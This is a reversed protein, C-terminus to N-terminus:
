RFTEAERDGVIMYRLGSHSLNYVVWEDASFHQRVRQLAQEITAAHVLVTLSNRCMAPRRSIRRVDVAWTNEASEAIDSM